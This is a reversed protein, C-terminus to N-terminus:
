RSHSRSWLWLIGAGVIAQTVGLTVWTARGLELPYVASAIAMWLHFGGHTGVAWWLGRWLVVAGALLGMGLPVLLYIVHDGLNEQGGSSSLHIITFAATTWALTFLPRSRTVQFLWGRFILEEPLGQLIFARVVVFLLVLIVNEEGIGDLSSTPTRVADILALVVWGVVVALGVIVIGGALGPLAARLPLVGTARLPAREVWRMWAAVAAIAVVPTLLFIVTTAALLSNANTFTAEAWHHLPLRVLNAALILLTALLVRLVLGWWTAPLLPRPTTSNQTMGAVNHGEGARSSGGDTM